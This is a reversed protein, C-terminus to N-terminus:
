DGNVLDEDFGHENCLYVKYPFCAIKYEKGEKGCHCVKM